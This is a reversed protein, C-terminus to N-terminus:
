LKLNLGKIKIINDCMCEWLKMIKHFVFVCVRFMNEWVCVTVTEYYQSICIRLCAFVNEWVYVRVIKYYQSIRIRLCPVHKRVCVSACNWLITFYLYAFLCLGAVPQAPAPAPNVANRTGSFIKFNNSHCDISSLIRLNHTFFFRTLNIGYQHFLHRFTSFISWPAWQLDRCVLLFTKECVCEWLKMINHFVFVCVRLFRNESVCEWLKM